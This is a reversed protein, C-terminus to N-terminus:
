ISWKQKKFVNENLNSFKYILIEMIGKTVISQAKENYLVFGNVKNEYETKLEKWSDINQKIIDNFNLTNICDNLIKIAFFYMFIEAFMNKYLVILNTYDVEINMRFNFAPLSNSCYNTLNYKPLEYDTGNWKHNEKTIRVPMVFVDKLIKDHIHYKEYEFIENTPNLQVTQPNTSNHEYFGLLYRKQSSGSDTSNIIFDDLIEILLDFDTLYDIDITKIATKKTLDYLYLRFNDIENLQFQINEIACQLNNGRKLQILFGVFDGKQENIEYNEYCVTDENALIESIDLRQHCEKIFTNILSNVVSKYTRELYNTVTEIKTLDTKLPICSEVIELSVNLNQNVFLGSSSTILNTDQLESLNTWSTPTTAIAVFIVATANSSAGCNTFIDGANFKTILYTNGVILKGATQRGLTINNQEVFGVLNKFSSYILDLNKM